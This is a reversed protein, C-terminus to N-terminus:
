QKVIKHNSVKGDRTEVKMIYNGELSLFSMDLIIPDSSINFEPKGILRGTIDYIQVSQIDGTNSFSLQDTFPNPYVNIANKDVIDTSLATPVLRIASFGNKILAMTSNSVMFSANILRGAILIKGTDDPLIVTSINQGMMFTGFNPFSFNYEGQNGFALDLNGNALIKRATISCSSSCNEPGTIYVSGDPMPEMYNTYYCSTNFVIQNTAL